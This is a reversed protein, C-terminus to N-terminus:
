TSQSTLLVPLIFILFPSHSAIRPLIRQGLWVKYLKKEEPEAHTIPELKEKKLGQNNLINSSLEQLKESTRKYTQVGDVSCHGTRSMITAEGLQADYLRTAAIVCLSHNTFYGKIGASKMLRPVVEGM